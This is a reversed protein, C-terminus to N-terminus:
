VAHMAQGGNQTLFTKQATLMAQYSNEALYSRQSNVSITFALISLYKSGLIIKARQCLICANISM